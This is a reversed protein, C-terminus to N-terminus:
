SWVKGIKEEIPYMSDPLCIPQVFNNFTIDRSLKLAAINNELRFNFDKHTMMDSIDFLRSNQLTASLQFPAVYVKLDRPSLLFGDELLCNVSTLITREDIITGACKYELEEGDGFFRYIAVMWPNKGPSSESPLFNGFNEVKKIQGCSDNPTSETKKDNNTSKPTSFQIMQQTSAEMESEDTNVETPITIEEPPLTQHKNSLPWVKVSNNYCTQEEDNILIKTIDFNANESYLSFKGKYTQSSRADYM